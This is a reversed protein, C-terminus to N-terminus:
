GTKAIHKIAESLNTAIFDIKVKEDLCKKYAIKGYGTEVLINHLGANAGTQMDSFADGIMYSDAININHENKAELIMGIDPKRSPHDATFEDIVGDKHYPSFYLADILADPNENLLLSYM